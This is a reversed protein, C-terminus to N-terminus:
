LWLFNKPLDEDFNRKMKFPDFMINWLSHYRPNFSPPYRTRPDLKMAAYQLEHADWSYRGEMMDMPMQVKRFRRTFSHGADSFKARVNIVSRDYVLGYRWEILKYDDRLRHAGVLDLETIQQAIVRADDDSYVDVTSGDIPLIQSYRDMRSIYSRELAETYADLFKDTLNRANVEWPINRKKLRERIQEKTAKVYVIVHPKWLHMVTTGHIQKFWRLARESLFGCKYMAECFAPEGFPSREIVFGRGTNFLNCLAKLYNWYRQIYFQFQLYLPKGKNILDPENWFMECTYYKAYDPLLYNHVRLDLPPDHRNLRYIDAETPDPFHVMGFYSALKEALHSKGSGINGEVVIVKSNENLRPRSPDIFSRFLSFNHGMFDFPPPDKFKVDGTEIFKLNRVFCRLLPTKSRLILPRCGGCAM